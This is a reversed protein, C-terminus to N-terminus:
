RRYRNASRRIVIVILIGIVAGATNHLVDDFECLGRSSVLQLLEIVM